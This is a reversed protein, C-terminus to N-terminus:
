RRGQSSYSRNRHHRSGQSPMQPPFMQPNEDLLDDLYASPARQGPAQSLNLSSMSPDQQRAAYQPSGDPSHDMMSGRAFPQGGRSDPRLTTYGAASHSGMGASPSSGAAYFGSPLYRSDRNAGAAASGAATPSFFLNSHSPTTSPVPGRTTRRKGRAPAPPTRDRESSKYFTAPPGRHTSKENARHQARAARAVSRHLLCAVVGRWVLIALGFTGLIAGVAIFVTGNPMTSRDMFPANITPPVAPPPYSYDVFGGSLTPVPDDDSTATQGLTITPVRSEETTSTTSQTEQRQRTSTRAPTRSQESTSEEEDDDNSDNTPSPTSNERTTPSPDEEEDDDNSNNTPSPTSNGRTPSPDEDDDDNNNNGGNGQALVVTSYAALLALSELRWARLPSSLHM